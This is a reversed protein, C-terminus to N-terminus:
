AFLMEGRIDIEAITYVRESEIEFLDSTEGHYECETLGHCSQFSSRSVVGAGARAVVREADDFGWHAGEAGWEGRGRVDAALEKLNASAGPSSIRGGSRDLTAATVGLERSLGDLEEGRLLRM